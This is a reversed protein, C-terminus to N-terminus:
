LRSEASMAAFTRGFQDASAITELPLRGPHKPERGAGRGVALLAVVSADDPLGVVPRVKEADFGEMPATDWGLSEFALMLFTFAIMVHRNLWVERPMGGIFNIARRKQKAVNGADGGIRQARTLMIEEMQDQWSDHEACAVIVVPAETIKEQDFAAERLRARIAADRVVIFRWPQINYGSPAEAALGLAAAIVAEPVEGPQFHPTARRHRVLRGFFLARADAPTVAAM